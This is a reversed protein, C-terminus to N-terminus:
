GATAPVTRLRRTAIWLVLTTAGALAIGATMPWASPGLSYGVIAGMLAGACQHSFGILASAAGADEPFPTLAAAVMQSVLLGLGFLYLAMSVTMMPAPSWGAAAILMGIGALALAGAGLGATRDLGLRLVIRTALIGGVLFGSCSVAYALAYGIASLGFLEQLVFPSAVIWAFLGSFGIAGVATNTLFAPHRAIRRYSRLLDTLPAGARGARTEPLFRWVLFGTVTGIVALFAFNARWGFFTQLTGGVLPGIIPALGMLMSMKSLQHGARVGEYLDRVVARAVVLAGSVGLAQVVRASILVEITPALLCVLAAAVYIVFSSILIPTRGLRDSIPGYIFQGIAYGALYLTVTLQVQAPPADLARGIFPMSPLYLDVSLPGFSTLLALLATFAFTDTRLM